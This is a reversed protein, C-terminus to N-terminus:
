GDGQRTEAGEWRMARRAKGCASACVYLFCPRMSERFLPPAAPRSAATSPFSGPPAAGRPVACRLGHSRWLIGLEKAPLRVSSRSRAFYTLIEVV